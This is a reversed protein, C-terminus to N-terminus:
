LGPPVGRLAAAIAEAPIVVNNSRYGGWGSGGRLYFCIDEPNRRLDFAEVQPFSPVIKDGAPNLFLYYTIPIGKGETARSLPNAGGPRANGMYVGPFSLIVRHDPRNCLFAENGLSYSNEQIFESLNVGSTFQAKLLLRNPKEGSHDGAALDGALGM